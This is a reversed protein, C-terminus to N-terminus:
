ETLDRKMKTVMRNIMKKEGEVEKLIHSVDEEEQARAEKAKKNRQTVDARETKM